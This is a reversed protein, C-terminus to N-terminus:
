ATFFKILTTIAASSGIVGQLFKLVKLGKSSDKSDISQKLIEANIEAQEKETEDKIQSISKLVEQYANSVESNSISITQTVDESQFVTGPGFTNGIIHGVNNEKKSM